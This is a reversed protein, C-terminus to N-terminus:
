FLVYKQPPSGTEFLSQHAEKQCIMGDQGEEQQKKTSDRNDTWIVDLSLSMKLNSSPLGKHALLNAKGLVVSVTINLTNCTGNQTQKLGLTSM